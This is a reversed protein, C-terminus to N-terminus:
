VPLPITPERRETDLSSMLIGYPVSCTLAIRMVAGEEKTGEFEMIGRSYRTSSHPFFKGFAGCPNRARHYSAYTCKFHRSMKSVVRCVCWGQWRVAGKVKESPPRAVDPGMADPVIRWAAGRGELLM